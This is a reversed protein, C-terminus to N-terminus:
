RREKWWMAWGRRVMVDYEGGFPGSHVARWIPYYSAAWPAQSFERVWFDDGAIIGGEKVKPWWAEIDAKVSEYDHAADIFVFDVSGPYDAAFRASDSKVIKLLGRTVYPELNARCREEIRADAFRDVTTFDVTVGAAIMAEAMYCASRGLHAGLEVFRTDLKGRAKAVMRDYLEEAKFWNESGFAEDLYHRYIHM